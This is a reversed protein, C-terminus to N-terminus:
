FYLMLVKGIHIKRSSSQAYRNKTKEQETTVKLKNGAALDHSFVLNQSRVPNKFLIDCYYLIDTLGWFTSDRKKRQKEKKVVM